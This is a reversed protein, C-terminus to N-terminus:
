STPWCRCRHRTGAAAAFANRYGPHRMAIPPARTKARQACISGSASPTPLMRDGRKAPAFGIALTSDLDVDCLGGSVAGFQIGVNQGNGNFQRPDFPHKQWGKGIAKKTKRSVPIPKWGRKAYHSAADAITGPPQGIQGAAHYSREDQM